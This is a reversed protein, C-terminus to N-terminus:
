LPILTWNHLHHTFLFDRRSHDIKKLLNWHIKKYYNIIFSITIQFILIPWYELDPKFRFFWSFCSYYNRLFIIRVSGFVLGGTNTDDTDVCDHVLCALLCVGHSPKPVTFLCCLDINKKKKKVCSLVTKKKKCLKDWHWSSSSKIQNLIMCSPQRHSTAV